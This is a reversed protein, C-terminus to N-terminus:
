SGQGAGKLKEALRPQGNKRLLEELDDLLQPDGHAYAAAIEATLNAEKTRGMRFYSDCLALLLAPMRTHSRSLQDAAEAWQQQRYRVLGLEAVATEYNPDNAIEAVFEKEAEDLRNQQLAYIGLYTHAGRVKPQVELARHLNRLGEVAQGLYLYLSGVLFYPRGPNTADKEQKQFLKLAEDGRHAEVLKRAEPWAARDAETGLASAAFSTQEVMKQHLDAQHQAEATNGLGAYARALYYHAQIATPDIALLRNLTDVATQYQKLQLQCHGLGLLADPSDSQVALIREYTVTADQWQSLKMQVSALLELASADEPRARAAATAYKAANGLDMNNLSAVALDYDIRELNPKAQKAKLLWQMGTSSDGASCLLEGYKQWVLLDVPKQKLCERIAKLALDDHGALHYAQALYYFADGDAPEIQLNHRLLTIAEDYKGSVLRYVGVKFLLDADNPALKLGKEYSQAAEEQRGTEELLMGRLKLAPAFEPHTKLFENTAALARAADGSNAIGVIQQFQRTATSPTQAIGCAVTATLLL